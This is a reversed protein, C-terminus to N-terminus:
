PNYDFKSSLKLGVRDKEVSEGVIFIQTYDWFRFTYVILEPFKAKLFSNLHQYNSYLEKGKEDDSGYNDFIYQGEDPYFTQFKSVQLFGSKILANQLALNKESATQYIIQHNYTNNYGGDYHGYTLVPTLSKIIRDIQSELNTKSKNFPVETNEETVLIESFDPTEQPVTSTVCIWNKNDFQGIVAFCSYVPSCSFEFIELHSLNSKLLMSLQNYFNKRQQFELSKRDVEDKGYELTYDAYDNYRKPTPIGNQEIEQWNKIAIEIDTNKMWGQSNLLSIPNFEGKILFDWYFPKWKSSHNNPLYCEIKEQLLIQLTGLLKTTLPNM